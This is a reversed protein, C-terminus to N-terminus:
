LDNRNEKMAVQYADYIGYLWVLPFTILGIVVFMLLVNIAQIVMLGIGKGIQGNYIQGLGTCLASLVAATGPNKIDRYVIKTTPQANTEEITETNKM